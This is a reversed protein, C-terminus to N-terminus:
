KANNVEIHPQTHPLADYEDLLADAADAAADTLAGDAIADQPCGCAKSTIHTTM